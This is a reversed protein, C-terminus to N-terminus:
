FSHKTIKQGIEYKIATVEEEDDDSQGCDVIKAQLGDGNGVPTRERVARTETGPGVSFRLGCRVATADSVAHTAVGRVAARLSSLLLAIEVILGGARADRGGRGARAETTSTALCPVLANGVYNLAVTLDDVWMGDASLIAREDEERAHRLIGTIIVTVRGDERERIVVCM